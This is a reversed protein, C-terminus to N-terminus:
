GIGETQKILQWVHDTLKTKFIEFKTIKRIEFPLKNWQIYTRHFFSNIFVDIVPRITCMYTLSDKNEITKSHKRTNPLSNYDVRKLYEPLQVCSLNNAIKYFMLIDAVKMKDKLPLIELKILKQIYEIKSYKSYTEKLIWKISRKQVAEIRDISVATAPSWIPSCHEFISRVMALYLTRRKNTNKTFSCSRKLLGLRQNAKSVLEQCNKTWNLKHTIFVGLDKEFECFELVDDHLAYDFLSPKHKLTARLVKCKDPHFKMKNVQSWQYLSDIDHQLVLHDNACKIERWIKTDDAYLLINTEPSVYESIDNIFLVFLLPGLISGQPVGSHV